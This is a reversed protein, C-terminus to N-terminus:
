EHFLWSTFIRGKWGESYKYKKKKDESAVKKNEDKEKWVM